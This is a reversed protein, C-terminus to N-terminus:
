LEHLVLGKDMSYGRGPVGSVSEWWWGRLRELGKWGRAGAVWGLFGALRAVRTEWPGELVGCSPFPLQSWM